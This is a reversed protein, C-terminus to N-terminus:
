IILEDDYERGHHIRSGLARGTLMASSQNPPVEDFLIYSFWSALRFPVIWNVLMGPLFRPHNLVFMMDPVLMLAIIPLFEWTANVFLVMIVTMTFMPRVHFEWVTFLADIRQGPRLEASNSFWMNWADSVRPVVIPSKKGTYVCASYDRIVRTGKQIMVDIDDGPLEKCMVPSVGDWYYDSYLAATFAANYSTIDYCLFSPTGMPDAIHTARQTGIVVSATESERLRGQLTQICKSSLPANAYVVGGEHPPLTWNDVLLPVFLFTIQRNDGLTGKFVGAQTERANTAIDHPNEEVDMLVVIHCHAQNIISVVTEKKLEKGGVIVLTNADVDATKFSLCPLLAMSKCAHYITPIALFLSFPLPWFVYLTYMNCANWIVSTVRDILGM